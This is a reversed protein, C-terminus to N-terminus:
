AYLNLKPNDAFGRLIDGRTILGILIEDETVPIADIHFTALVKAIRRIDSISHTCIVKRNLVDSVLINQNIQIENNVITIRRLIDRESLVGMVKRQETIVVLQKISKNDILNYAKTIPADLFITDVPSSMIQYAHVLPELMGKDHGLYKQYASVAQQNKGSSFNPSDKKDYNTPINNKRTIQGWEELKELPGKFKLGDFDNVYFM